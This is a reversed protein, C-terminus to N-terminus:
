SQIFLKKSILHTNTKINLIYMGESLNQVPLNYMNQFYVPVSNVIKGSLDVLEITVNENIAETTNIQLNGPTCIV